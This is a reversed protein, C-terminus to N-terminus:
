FDKLEDPTIEWKNEHCPEDIIYYYLFHQDEAVNNGLFAKEILAKLKYLDIKYGTKQFRKYGEARGGFTLGLSKARDLGTQLEESSVPHGFGVNSAGLDKAKKFDSQPVGAFGILKSNTLVESQSDDRVMKQYGIFIIIALILTTITILVKKM